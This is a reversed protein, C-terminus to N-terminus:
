FFLIRDYRKLRDINFLLNFNNNMFLLKLKNNLNYFFIIYFLVIYTEFLINLNIFIHHKLLNIKKVLNKLIYKKIFYYCIIIKNFFMNLRLIYVILYYSRFINFFIYEKFKKNLLVYVLLFFVIFFICLLFNESYNLFNFNILFSFICLGFIINM